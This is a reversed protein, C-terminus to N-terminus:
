GIVAAGSNSRSADADTSADSGGTSSSAGASDSSAGADAADAGSSAVASAGEASNAFAISGPGDAAHAIGALLATLLAAEARATPRRL